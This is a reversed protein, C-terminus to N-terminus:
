IGGTATKAEIIYKKVNRLAMLRVSDKAKMAEMIAQSIQQELTM